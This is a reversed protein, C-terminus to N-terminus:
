KLKSRIQQYRLKLHNMSINRIYIKDKSKNLEYYPLELIEKVLKMCALAVMDNKIHSRKHSEKMYAIVDTYEEIAGEIEKLEKNPM